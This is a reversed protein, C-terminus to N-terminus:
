SVVPPARPRASLAPRSTFLVASSQPPIAFPAEALRLQPLDAAPPALRDGAFVCLKCHDHQSASRRELPTDGREIKIYHTTAGASCVPVLLADAPKAQALLPWLTNLLVALIAAISGSRLYRRARM